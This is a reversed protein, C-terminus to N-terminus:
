EFKLEYDLSHNIKASFKKINERAMKWITEAPVMKFVETALTKHQGGRSSEAEKIDFDINCLLKNAKTLLEFLLSFNRLFGDERNSKWSALPLFDLLHMAQYNLQVWLAEADAEMRENDIVRYCVISKLSKLKSPNSRAIELLEDMMPGAAVLRLVTPFLAIQEFEFENVLGRLEPIKDKSMPFMNTGVGMISHLLLVRPSKEKYHVASYEYCFRLHDWFSGDAHESSFDCKKEMFELLAKDHFPAKPIRSFSKSILEQSAETWFPTIGVRDRVFRRAVQSDLNGFITKNLDFDGNGHLVVHGCLDFCGGRVIYAKRRLDLVGHEGSSDIKQEDTVEISDPGRNLYEELKKNNSSVDEEAFFGYTIYAGVACGVASGLLLQQYDKM